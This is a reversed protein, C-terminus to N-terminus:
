SFSNHVGVTLFMGLSCVFWGMGKIEIGQQARHIAILVFRQEARPMRYWTLDYAMDGIELARTQLKTVFFCILFNYVLHFEM